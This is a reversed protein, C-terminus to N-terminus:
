IIMYDIFWYIIERFQIKSFQAIEFLKIIMHDIMHDFLKVIM